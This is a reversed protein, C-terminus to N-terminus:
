GNQCTCAPNPALTITHFSMSLADFTLLRNTLLTGIGTIYKIAETAQITGLIGPIAGLPGAPSEHPTTGDPILCRYCATDPLITMTHGSYHSIAGHNFPKGAEVCIDNILYKSDLNDTADIIFDYDPLLEAANEKSFFRTYATVQINPNLRTIKEKASIAKPRNIYATSHIIQRLLNSYDVIDGDIFGITGVGAAALYYLVPSGLGGAGIVLVRGNRLRIQGDEGIEPLAFHRAYRQIEDSNFRDM